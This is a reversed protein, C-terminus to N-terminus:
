GAYREVHKRSVRGWSCPGTYGAARAWPTGVDCNMTEHSYVVGLWQARQDCINLLDDKFVTDLMDSDSSPGARVALFGQGKLDLGRVIGVIGCAEDSPGQSAIVPVSSQQASAVHPLCALAPAPLIGIRCLTSTGIM